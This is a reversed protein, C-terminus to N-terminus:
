TVISQHSEHPPRQCRFCVMSIPLYVFLRSIPLKNGALPHSLSILWTSRVIVPIEDLSSRIDNPNWWRRYPCQAKWLLWLSCCTGWIVMQISESIVGTASNTILQSDNKCYLRADKVSLYPHNLLGHTTQWCLPSSELSELTSKVGRIWCLSLDVTIAM